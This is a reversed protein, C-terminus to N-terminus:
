IEERTMMEDLSKKLALKAKEIDDETYNNKIKIPDGFLFTIHNFPLPLIFKDWSNFVKKRTCHYSLPMIPIQTKGAIKIINGNIQYIPGKPGDPVIAITKNEKVKDLIQRLAKFGDKNSSGSITKFGFCHM